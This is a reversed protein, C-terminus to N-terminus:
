NKLKAETSFHWWMALAEVNAIDVM